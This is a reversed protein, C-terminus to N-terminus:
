RTRNPIRPNGGGLISWRALLLSNYGFLCGASILGPWWVLVISIVLATFAFTLSLICLGPHRM